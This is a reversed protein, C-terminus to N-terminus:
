GRSEPAEKTCQATGPEKPNGNGAGEPQWKWSRPNGMELEKSQWKWSAGM